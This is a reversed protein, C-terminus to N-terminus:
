KKFTTYLTNRSNGLFVKFLPHIIRGLGQHYGMTWHHLHQHHGAGTHSFHVPQRRNIGCGNAVNSENKGILLDLNISQSTYM